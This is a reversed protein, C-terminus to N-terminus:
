DPAVEEYNEKQGAAKRYTHLLHNLYGSGNMHNRSWCKGELYFFFLTGTFGAAPPSSTQVVPFSRSQLSVHGSLYSEEWVVKKKKNECTVCHLLKKFFMYIKAVKLQNLYSISILDM